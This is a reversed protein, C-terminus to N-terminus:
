SQRPTDTGDKCLAGIAGATAMGISIIQTAVEPMIQIGLASGLLILGRWTSAEQLRDLLWQKM